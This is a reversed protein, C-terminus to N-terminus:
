AWHVTVTDDTPPSLAVELVAVTDVNTEHTTVDEISLAPLPDRPPPITAAAAPALVLLVVLAVAFRPMVDRQLGTGTERRIRGHGGQRRRELVARRVDGGGGRSESWPPRRPCSECAREHRAARDP